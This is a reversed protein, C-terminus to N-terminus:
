WFLKFKSNINGLCDKNWIVKGFEENNKLNKDLVFKNLKEDDDYGFTKVLSQLFQEDNFCLWVFDARSDNFLYKNRAIINKPVKLEYSNDSKITILDELLYFNTIFFDKNDSILYHGSDVLEFRSFFNDNKWNVCDGNYTVTYELQKNESRNSSFNKFFIEKTPKLYNNNKLAVNVIQLCLELDKTSLNYPNSSEEEDTEINAQLAIQKKIENINLDMNLKKEIKNINKNSNESKDKIGDKCSLVCFSLIIIMNLKITKM